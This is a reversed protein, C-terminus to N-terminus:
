KKAGSAQRASRLWELLEDRPRLEVRHPILKALNNDELLRPAFASTTTMVAKTASVDAALVGALARVEDATVPNGPSYAKVQEVIRISLVGNRTAILDRGKDGSRPTLIVEDFGAAKYSGAMIEEWQRPDLRYMQDPDREFIKLIEFWPLAVAEVIRGEPTKDGFTLLAGLTIAPLTALSEGSYTLTAPSGTVSYVGAQAHLRLPTTQTVNFTGPPLQETM